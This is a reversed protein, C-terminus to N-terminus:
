PVQRELLAVLLEAPCCREAGVDDDRVRLARVCVGRVAEQLVPPLVLKRRRQLLPPRAEPEAEQFRV